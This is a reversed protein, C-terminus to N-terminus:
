HENDWVVGDNCGRLNLEGSQQPFMLIMNCLVQQIFLCTERKLQTSSFTLDEVPRLARDNDRSLSVSM